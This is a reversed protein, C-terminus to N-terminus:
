SSSKSVSNVEDFILYIEGVGIDSYYNSYDLSLVGSVTVREGEAVTVGNINADEFTESGTVPGIPCEYRYMGVGVSPSMLEDVWMIYQNGTSDLLFSDVEGTIEIINDVFYANDMTVYITFDSSGTLESVEGVLNIVENTSLEKIEDLSLFAEVEIEGRGFVDLPANLPILRISEEQIDTVYGTIQYINGVYTEEANVTNESYSTQLSACDLKTATELMEEKTVSNDRGCAALSLMLAAALILAWIKKM